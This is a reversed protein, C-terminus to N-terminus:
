EPMAACSQAVALLTVGRQQLGALLAGAHGIENTRWCLVRDFARDAAAALLSPLHDRDPRPVVTWGMAESYREIRARQNAALQPDNNTLYIAVRDSPVRCLTARPPEANM